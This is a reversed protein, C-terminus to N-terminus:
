TRPTNADGPYATQILNGRVDYTYTMQRGLKDVIIEPQGLANYVTKASHLTPTAADYLADRTEVLRNQGDYIHTTGISEDRGDVKRHITEACRNGNADYTYSAESLMVRQADRITVSKLDGAGGGSEGARYYGYLAKNGLPDTTSSLRNEDDYTFTTVEGLNN